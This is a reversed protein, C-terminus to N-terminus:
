NREERRKVANDEVSDRAGKESGEEEPGDRRGRKEFYKADEKEDCEDM